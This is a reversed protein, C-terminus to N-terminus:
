PNASQQPVLYKAPVWGDGSDFRIHIWATKGNTVPAGLIQIEAFGNPLRNAVPTNIGPGQRVGLSDGAKIGSVMYASRAANAIPTFPPNAPAQKGPSASQSGRRLRAPVGSVNTPLQGPRNEKALAAARHESLIDYRAKAEQAKEPFGAKSYTMWLFYWSASDAPDLQASRTFDEAADFYDAKVLFYRGRVRWAYAFTPLLKIATEAARKGPEIQNNNMYANGLNAWAQGAKPFANALKFYCNVSDAYLGLKDYTNGLTSTVRPDDPYRQVVSNLLKLAQTPNTEILSQATSFESDAELPITNSAPKTSPKRPEASGNLLEALLENVTATPIAFNLNQGRVLIWTAVGIVGGKANLVPSGSSGPSIPATIQIGRIGAENRDASVIGTSVTGDLGFPSGVVVVPSGVEAPLTDLPLFPVHTADAKLVALDKTKDDALIGSIAFFAGNESKAFFSAGGEIVHHNTVIEGEPSVFFGTGTKLVQGQADNVMVAVVAPRSERAIRPVDIPTPAPDGAPQAAAAGPLAKANIGGNPRDTSGVGNQALIPACSLLWFVLPLTAPHVERFYNLEPLRHVSKKRWTTIAAGATEIEGHFRWFPSKGVHAVSLESNARGFSFPRCAREEASLRGLCRRAQVTM